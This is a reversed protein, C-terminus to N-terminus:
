GKALLMIAKSSCCNIRKKCAYTTRKSLCCYSIIMEVFTFNKVKKENSFAIKKYLVLPYSKSSLKKKIFRSILFFSLFIVFLNKNLALSQFCSFTKNKYFYCISYFQLHSFYSNKKIYYQLQFLRHKQAFFLQSLNLSSCSAPLILILQSRLTQILTM